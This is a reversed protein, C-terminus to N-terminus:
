NLKCASKKRIVGNDSYKQTTCFEERYDRCSEVIIEGNICSKLYHRSGVYDTGNGIKADYGCWSEGHVRKETVIDGNSKQIQIECKNDCLTNKCTPDTSDFIGGNCNNQTTSVCDGNGKNCCGEVRETSHEGCTCTSDPNYSGM